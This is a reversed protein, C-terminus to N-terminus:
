YLIFSKWPSDDKMSMTIKWPLWLQSPHTIGILTERLKWSTGSKKYHHDGVDKDEVIKVPTLSRKRAEQKAVTAMEEKYVGYMLTKEYGMTSGRRAM